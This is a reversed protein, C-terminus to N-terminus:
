VRKKQKYMNINMFYEWPFTNVFCNSQVRNRKNHCDEGTGVCGILQELRYTTTMLQILRFQWYDFYFSLYHPVHRASWRGRSSARCNSLVYDAAFSLYGSLASRNIIYLEEGIDINHLSRAVHDCQSVWQYEMFCTIINVKTKWFM